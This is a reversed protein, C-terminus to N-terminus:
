SASQDSDVRVGGSKYTRLVTSARVGHVQGAWREDALFEQFAAYDKMAVNAVIQYEGLVAVVYKAFPSSTIAAAVEATKDPATSFWIFAEALMGLDQARVVSRVEAIRTLLRALRKRVTTTSYGTIEALRSTGLRGDEALAQLMVVDGEDARGRLDNVSSYAPNLRTAEAETILEPMWQTLTKHYELVPAVTVEIVGLISPIDELVSFALEQQSIYQEIVLRTPSSLAYVFVTEPRSALERAVSDVASSETAVEIIATREALAMVTVTVLGSAILANGRRVVTTLPIGLVKSIARWSARGDAQLAGIIRHDIDELEM